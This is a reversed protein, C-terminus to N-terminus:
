NSITVIIAISVFGILLVSIILLVTLLLLWLSIMLKLASAKEEGVLQWGIFIAQKWMTVCILIATGLIPYYHAFGYKPFYNSTYISGWFCGLCCVVWCVSGLLWQGLTQPKAFPNRM